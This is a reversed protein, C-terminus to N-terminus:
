HSATSNGPHTAASSSSNPPQGPSALCWNRLKQMMELYGDGPEMLPSLCPNRLFSPLLSSSLRRQKAQKM